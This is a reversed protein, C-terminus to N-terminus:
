CISPVCHATCCIEFNMEECVSHRIININADGISCINDVHNPMRETLFDIKFYATFSM